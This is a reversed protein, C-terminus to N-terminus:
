RRCRTWSRKPRPWSKRGRQGGSWIMLREANSKEDGSMAGYLVAAKIGPDVVAARLAIGGGMSHGLLGIAQPDAKQLPGAQGGHQRVLAALNLVDVAFGVRFLNKSGDSDSAPTGPLESPHHHVGGPGPRRRLPHYLGIDQLEGPERLRAARPGRFHGKARQCM